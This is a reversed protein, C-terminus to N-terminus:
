RKEKEKFNKGQFLRLNVFYNCFCYLSSGFVRVEAVGLILMKCLMACRGITVTLVPATGHSGERWAAEANGSTVTETESVIWSVVSRARDEWDGGTQWPKKTKGWRKHSQCLRPWTNQLIDRSRSKDSTKEYNSQLLPDQFLFGCFHHAKETYWMLLYLIKPKEPPKPTFFRGALAPSVPELGSGPLNWM